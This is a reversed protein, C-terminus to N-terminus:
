ADLRTSGPIRGSCRSSSKKLVIQVATAGAGVLAVKKGKVKVNEPWFGSHHVKGEYDKLRQFDPVFKRHLLGTALILYKCTATHGADTKVTWRATDKDYSSEIVRTNFQIDKKSGLVKEIHAFYRRVEVHDPFIESFNWTRYV